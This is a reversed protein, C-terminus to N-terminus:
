KTEQPRGFVKALLLCAVPFVVAYGVIGINRIQMNGFVPGLLGAFSLIGSVVLLIRIAKYRGGGRFVPAAFLVALAFFFDWSLIDLAYIVSPWNFSFLYTMWQTNPLAELPRSVTLVLFHVICTICVMICMCALAALSYTKKEPAALAHIEVMILIYLPASILILLEMLTFYPDQIPQDLSPLTALGIALVIVYVMSLIFLVLAAIKGLKGNKSTSGMTQM